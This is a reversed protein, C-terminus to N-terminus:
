WKYQMAAKQHLLGWSWPQARDSQKFFPDSFADAMLLMPGLFTQQSVTNHAQIEEPWCFRFGTNGNWAQSFARVLQKDDRDERIMTKYWSPYGLNCTSSFKYPSSKPKLSNLHQQFIWQKGRPHLPLVRWTLANTFIRWVACVLSWANM